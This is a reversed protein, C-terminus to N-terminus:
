ILDWVVGDVNFDLLISQEYGNTFARQAEDPRGVYVNFMGFDVYNDGGHPNNKVWGVVQGEKVPEFGLMQYVENLFLYGRANLLDNAWNQWLHLNMRNTQPSRTWQSSCEDFFRAYMSPQRGDPLVVGEHAVDSGPETLTARYAGYRYEQDKWEGFEEIVKKRYDSFATELAKYAAMLAINRKRMIGYASLFCGIGLMTFGVGPAYLKIFKGVTHTYVVVTDTRKDNESYVDPHEEVVKKIEEMKEAHEDLIAEAKLTAKCSLVVGAVVSTTGAVILIEPSYKRVRLAAKGIAATVKGGHKALIQNFKM